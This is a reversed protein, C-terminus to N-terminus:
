DVLCITEVNRLVVFSKITVIILSRYLEDFNEASEKWGKFTKKNIYDPNRM